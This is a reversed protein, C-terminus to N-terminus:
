EAFITTEHNATVGAPSGASVVEARCLAAGKRDARVRVQYIATEGAALRPRPEFRITKDVIASTADGAPRDVIPTMEAPVVVAVAVQQDEATGVNTVRVEFKTEKGVSVPDNLDVISLNLKPTGKPPAPPTQATTPATPAAQPASRPQATPATVPPQQGAAAIAVCVESTARYGEATVVVARNCANAVPMSAEGLMKFQVTKGPPLSPVVWVIDDGQRTHNPSALELRFARDYSDILRVQNLTSAGRNTIEVVFNAKQGVVLRAPGTKTVVLPQAAPNQGGVAAGAAPSNMPRAAAAAAATGVNVIAKASGRLTKEELLEVANSLEGPQTVKFSVLIRQSQGPAIPEIDRELPSSRTAHQLGADFRDVVLLPSTPATGRNTITTVFEVEDGLAATAPGTMTVDLSERAATATMVTTSACSQATTGDGATLVACNNVPGARDARYDVEIVRTEGASLDSLSWILQGGQSQAPPNSSLFTLGPPTPNAVSVNSASVGAPNTVEIRYGLTTGLQAWAPGTTRLSLAATPMWTKTTTGEGVIMQQGYAGSLAAPRILQIKILNTGPTPQQQFIEATGQGASNTVAEFAQTGQDMFGAAPGGVIEYRVIWGAVPTHDSERIVTTTMMQRGGMPTNTTPPFSWLADIWHITATRTRKGWEYVSPAFATVHSVGEVPSTVTVWAQGRQVLVDDVRTPTGKTLAVYKKSTMGIAYSNDVKKPRKSPPELVGLPGPQNIAVLQGVGGPALMWEIREHARMYGDPDCVHGLVVVEDGVSAIIRAPTVTLNCNDRPHPKGPDGKYYPNKPPECTLIHRGTPDIRPMNLNLHTASGIAPALLTWVIAVQWITLTFRKM